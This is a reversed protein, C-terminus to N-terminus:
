EQQQQTDRATKSERDLQQHKQKTTPTPSVARRLCVAPPQSISREDTLPPAALSKQDIELPYTSRRTQSIYSVIATRRSPHVIAHRRQRNKNQKKHCAEACFHTHKTHIIHYHTHQIASRIYKYARSTCTNHHTMYSAHTHTHTHGMRAQAPSTGGSSIISSSLSASM